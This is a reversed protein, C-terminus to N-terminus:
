RTVQGTCTPKDDLFPLDVVKHATAEKKYRYIYCLGQIFELIFETFAFRM